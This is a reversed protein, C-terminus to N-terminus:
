FSFNRGPQFGKVKPMPNGRLALTGTDLAVEEFERHQFGLCDCELVMLYMVLLEFEIAGEGKGLV